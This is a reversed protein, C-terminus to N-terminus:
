DGGNGQEEPLAPEKRIVRVKKIRRGLMSLVRLTLVGEAEVEDGVSPMKGLRDYIFGGITDFDEKPLDLGFLDNLSDMSVKGDVVAEGDAIHQIEREEVDFEDAIEGVIEELVDEVTILGATGGYEDAVIAISMKKKRMEALLEDVKKSEPVFYPPLAIDLLDMPHAREALYRLVEIAFLVGVVNDITEAYVPLRSHGKDVM